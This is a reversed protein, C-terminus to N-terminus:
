LVDDLNIFIFCILIWTLILLGLTQFTFGFAWAIFVSTICCILEVLPYRLSIQTKCYACKGNLVLYSLVPIYHWPKLRRKCKPCHSLPFFLSMGKPLRYIVVNLFSGVFLSVIAIFFLFYTPKETFLNAIDM